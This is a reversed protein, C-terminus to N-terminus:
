FLFAEIRAMVEDMLDRPATEAFRVDRHQWDLSKIQDVLVVGSTHMTEILAVEFPYGKARSTIPCFLALGTTKNYKLPSIVIAPRHGRQERGTQPDFNLWVIDGRAPIYTSSGSKM